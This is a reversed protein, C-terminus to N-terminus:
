AEWGEQLIGAFDVLVAVLAGQPDVGRYFFRAGTAPGSDVIAYSGGNREGIAWSCTPLRNAELATDALEREEENLPLSRSDGWILALSEAGIANAGRFFIPEWDAVAADAYKVRAVLITQTGDARAGVVLQLLGAGTPFSDDTRHPEDEELGDSAALTATPLQFAGLDLVHLELREDDRMTHSDNFLRTIPEM